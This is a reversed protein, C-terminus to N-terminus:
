CKKHISQFCFHKKCQSCVTNVKKAHNSAYVTSYDKTLKKYCKVCRKRTVSKKGIVSGFHAKITM